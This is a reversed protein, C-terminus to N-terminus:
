VGRIVLLKGGTLTPLGTLKGNSIGLSLSTSSPSGYSVSKYYKDGDFAYMTTSSTGWTSSSNAYAYGYAKITGSTTKFTVTPNTVDVLYAECNNNGTTSSSTGTYTGTVGLITVGSKINSAIIKGQETSSISVKGGGSHYGAPITYAGVRSYIAGNVTGNNTMTGTTKGEKIYAIKGSLIDGSTATADSINSSNTVKVYYYGDKLGDDPYSSRTESTVYGIFGGKGETYTTGVTLKSYIAYSDGNLVFVWRKSYISKPKQTNGKIYSYGSLVYDSPRIITFSGTDDIAYDYYNFNVYDSPQTKGLNTETIDWVKGYYKKWIYDGQGTNIVNGTVVAGASNHATAGEVLTDESVTDGTLDILTKGDYVIKNCAM